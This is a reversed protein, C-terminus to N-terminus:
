WEGSTALSLRLKSDRILALGTGVGIANRLLEKGTDPRYPLCTERGGKCCQRHAIDLHRHQRHLVAQGSHDLLHGVQEPRLRGHPHNAFQHRGDSMVEQSHSGAPHPAGPGVRLRQRLAAPPEGSVTDLSDREMVRGTRRARNCLAAPRALPRHGTSGGCRPVPQYHHCAVDGVLGTVAGAEERQLAALGVKAAQPPWGLEGETEGSSVAGSPEEGDQRDEGLM